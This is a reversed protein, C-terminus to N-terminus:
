TTITPSPYPSPYQTPAPTVERPSPAPFVCTGTADDWRGGRSQCLIAGLPAALPTAEGLTPYPLPPIEPSPVPMEGLVILPFVLTALALSFKM